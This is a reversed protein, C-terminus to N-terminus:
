EDRHFIVVLKNTMNFFLVVKRYKPSNRVNRHSRIERFDFKGCLCTDSKRRFFINQKFNKKQAHFNAVYILFRARLRDIENFIFYANNRHVSSSQKIAAEFAHIFRQAFVHRSLYVIFFLLLNLIARRLMSSGSDRNWEGSGNVPHSTLRGSLLNGNNERPHERTHADYNKKSLFSVSQARPSLLSYCSGRARTESSRKRPAEIVPVILFTQTVTSPPDDILPPQFQSCLAVDHLKSIAGSDHRPIRPLVSRKFQDARYARQDDFKDWRVVYKHVSLIVRLM